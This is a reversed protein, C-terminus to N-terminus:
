NQKIKKILIEHLRLGPIKRKLSKDMDYKYLESLIKYKYNNLEYLIDGTDERALYCEEIGVTVSDELNEMSEKISKYFICDFLKTYVLVERKMVSIQTKVENILERIYRENKDSIETNYKNANQLINDIQTFSKNLTDLGRELITQRYWFEKKDKQINERGSRREVIFFGIVLILNIVSAIAQIAAAMDQSM